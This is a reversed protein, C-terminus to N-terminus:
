SCIRVFFFRRSDGSSLKGMSVDVTDSIFSMGISYM